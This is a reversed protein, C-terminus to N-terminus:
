FFHQSSSSSAFSISFSFIYLRAALYLSNCLPLLYLRHPLHSTEPTLSSSSGSSKTVEVCATKTAPRFGPLVPLLCASLFLFGSPFLIGAVADKLQQPYPNLLLLSNKGPYVSIGSLCPSLLPSPSLQPKLSPAAM